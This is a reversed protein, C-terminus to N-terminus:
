RILQGATPRGISAVIRRFIGLSEIGSETVDTNLVVVNARVVGKVCGQDLGPTKVTKGFVLWVNSSIGEVLHKHENILLADDFGNEQAFIGALTYVQANSSKLNSLLGTPKAHDQFLQINKGAQPM